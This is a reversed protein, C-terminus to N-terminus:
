FFRAIIHLLLAFLPVSFLLLSFLVLGALFAGRRRHRHLFLPLGRKKLIRVGTKTKRAAERMRFFGPISVSAIARGEGEKRISWLYIGNKVCLNVFREIYPGYLRLVLFGRLYHFITFFM